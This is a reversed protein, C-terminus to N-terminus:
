LFHADLQTNWIWIPDALWQMFAFRKDVAAERTAPVVVLMIQALGAIAQTAMPVSSTAGGEAM